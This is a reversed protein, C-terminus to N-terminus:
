EAHGINLFFFQRLGLSSRLAQVLDILQSLLDVLQHVSLLIIVHLKELMVLFYLTPNFVVPVLAEKGDLSDGLNGAIHDVLLLRLWLFSLLRVWTDNALISVVQELELFAQNLLCKQLQSHKELLWVVIDHVELILLLDSFNKAGHFFSEVGINVDQELQIADLLLVLEEYDHKQM